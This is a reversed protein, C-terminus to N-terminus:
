LGRELIITVSFSNNKEDTESVKNDPDITFTIVNKGITLPIPLVHQKTNAGLGFVISNGVIPITPGSFQGFVKLQGGGASRFAIVGLNFTCAKTDCKGEGTKVTITGDADVRKDTLKFASPSSAFYVARRASLDVNDRGAVNLPLVLAGLMSVCLVRIVKSKSKSKM